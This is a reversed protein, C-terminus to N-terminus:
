QLAQYAVNAIRWPIPGLLSILHRVSGDVVLSAYVKMRAHFANYDMFTGGAIEPPGGAADISKRMVDNLVRASADYLACFMAETPDQDRFVRRYCDALQDVVAKGGNRRLSDSFVKTVASIDTRPIDQSFWPQPAAEARQCGSLLFAVAIAAIMAMPALRFLLWGGYLAARLLLLTMWVLCVALGVGGIILLLSM